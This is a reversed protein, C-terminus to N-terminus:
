KTAGKRTEQRTEQQDKRRGSLLLQKLLPFLGMLVTILLALSLPYFYLAQLPRMQKSERAIPELKDLTAYIQKLSEADRARFYRGGTSTAIDTLMGEDLDQSPNVQRNGFFSQVLMKDAGVGITYVTVDNNIALENAQEPTINGATNQGDTLLVLVKNSEKRAEFRKIALGIADGIATQEGVLGILSENLLQEVTERDYTLPAQLYATDAFLILGLRDGVRRKIFDSLVFKIMKLRDVQRGNVQMDDIKMSGSLDVAIMLDRGEAPISVPEGLWQPRATALILAVWALTALLVSLKKTGKRQSKAEIGSTLSPVRLAAEQGQKKSPLLLALLPLPLLFFVWMWEFELM